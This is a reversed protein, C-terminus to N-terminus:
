TRDDNKKKKKQKDQKQQELAQQEAPHIQDKPPDENCKPKDRAVYRPMNIEGRNKEL